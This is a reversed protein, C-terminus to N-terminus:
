RVMRLYEIGDEAPGYFLEDGAPDDLGPFASKQGYVPDNRPREYLQPTSKHFDDGDDHEAYSSRTRKAYPSSGTTSPPKRKNPMKSMINSYLDDLPKHTSTCMFTLRLERPGGPAQAM